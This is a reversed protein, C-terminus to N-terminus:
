SDALPVNFKHLLFLTFLISFVYAFVPNKHHLRLTIFTVANFGISWQFSWGHGHKIAGVHLAIWEITCYIAVYKLIHIIQPINGKPYNSLFLLVTAPFVIITYFVDATEKSFLYDGQYRWLFFDKGLVLLGYILNALPMFLMTAHYTRWNRWDSWRWAAFISWLIVIIHM